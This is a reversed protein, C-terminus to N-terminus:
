KSDSRQVTTDGNVIEVKVRDVEKRIITQQYGQQSDSCTDKDYAKWFPEIDHEIVVEIFSKVVSKSFYESDCYADITTALAEKESAGAILQDVYNQMLSKVQERM